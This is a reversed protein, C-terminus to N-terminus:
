VFLVYYWEYDVLYVFVDDCMLYDSGDVYCVLLMLCGVILSWVVFLFLWLLDWGYWWVGGFGDEVDLLVFCFGSCCLFYVIVLM